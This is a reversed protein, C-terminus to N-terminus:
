PEGGEAMRDAQRMDVEVGTRLDGFVLYRVGKPSTQRLPYNGPHNRLYARRWRRWGRQLACAGALDLSAVAAPGAHVLYRQSDLAWTQIKSTM